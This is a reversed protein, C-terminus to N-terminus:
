VKKTKMSQQCVTNTDCHKKMCHKNDYEKPKWIKNVYLTQWVTNTKMSKKTKMSQQCVTNTRMTNTSMFHKNDYFIQQRITNTSMCHKNVDTNTTMCHKNVDTNTTICYKNNFLTQQWVTSKMFHKNVDTNTSMLTQQCVTNTTM